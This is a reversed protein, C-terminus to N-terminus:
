PVRPYRPWRRHAHDHLPVTSAVGATSLGNAIRMTPGSQVGQKAVDYTPPIGWPSGSMRASVSKPVSVRASELSESPQHYPGLPLDSRPIATRRRQSGCPRSPLANEPTRCSGDQEQPPLVSSEGPLHARSGGPSSALAGRGHSRPLREEEEEEEKNVGRVVETVGKSVGMSFNSSLLMLACFIM